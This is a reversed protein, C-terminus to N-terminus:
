GLAQDLGPRVGMRPQDTYPPRTCRRLERAGQYKAPDVNRTILIELPLSTVGVDDMGTPDTRNIPDNGCYAYWNVGKRSPDETLFRCYYRANFYIQGEPKLRCSTM